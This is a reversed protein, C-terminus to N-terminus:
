LRANQRTVLCFAHKKFGSDPYAEKLWDEAVATAAAEYQFPTLVSLYHKSGRKFVVVSREWGQVLITYRKRKALPEADFTFRKMFRAPM